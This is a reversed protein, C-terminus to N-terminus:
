GYRPRRARRRVRCRAGTTPPPQAGQARCAVSAPRGQRQVGGHSAGIQVFPNRRQTFQTHGLFPHPHSPLHAPAIAHPQLDVATPQGTETGVVVQAQRLLEFHDGRQLIGSGAITGAGGGRMQDAPVVGRVFCQFAFDGFPQAIRRRQQEAAAEDGVQGHLLRQEAFFVIDAHLVPEIVGAQEIGRPQGTAPQPAIRVQIHFARHALELARGFARRHQGCVANEAHVAIDRRQAGQAQHCAHLLRQEIHVVRVTNAHETRLPATADGIGPQAHGFHRQLQDGQALRETAVARHHHAFLRQHAM